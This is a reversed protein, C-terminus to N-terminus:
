RAIALALQRATEKAHARGKADSAVKALLRLESLAKKATAVSVGHGSIFYSGTSNIGPTGSGQWEAIRSGLRATGRVMGTSGNKVSARKSAARRLAARKKKRAAERRLAEAPSLVTRMGTKVPRAVRKRVLCAGGQSRRRRSRASDGKAKIDNGVNSCKGLKVRRLVKTGRKKKAAM